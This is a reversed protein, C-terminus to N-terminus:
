IKFLGLPTYRPGTLSLESRMLIIETVTWPETFPQTRQMPLLAEQTLARDSNRRGLTIHPTYKKNEGPIFARHAAKEVENRIDSLAETDGSVGAWLVKPRILDPFGGIGKINIEFPGRNRINKLNELFLDVTEPPREGCFKITIHMTEPSVWRFEHSDRRRASLWGSLVKM